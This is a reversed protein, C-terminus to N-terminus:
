RSSIILSRQCYVLLSAIALWIRKMPIMGYIGSNHLPRDDPSDLLSVTPHWQRLESAGLTFWHACNRRNLGDPANTFFARDLSVGTLV